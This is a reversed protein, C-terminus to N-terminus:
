WRHPSVRSAGEVPARTENRLGIKALVRQSAHNTTLTFGVVELPAEFLQRVIGYAFDRELEGGRAGIVRMGVSSGVDRAHALLATKGIGAEGESMVVAGAGGTAAAISRELREVERDRELLM